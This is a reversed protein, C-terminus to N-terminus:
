CRCIGRAEAHQGGDRLSGQRKRDALEFEIRPNIQHPNAFPDQRHTRCAHPKAERIQTIMREAAAADPCYVENESIDFAIRTLDAPSTEADEVIEIILEEADIWVDTEGPM